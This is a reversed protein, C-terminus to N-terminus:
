EGTVKSGDGTSNFCRRSEQVVNCPPFSSESSGLLAWGVRVLITSGGLLNSVRHDSKPAVYFRILKRCFFKFLFRIGLWTINNSAVHDMKEDRRNDQCIGHRGCLSTQMDHPKGTALLDPIRTTLALQLSRLAVM